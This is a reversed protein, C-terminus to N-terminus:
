KQTHWNLFHKYNEILTNLKEEAMFGQNEKKFADTVSFLGENESFRRNYEVHIRDIVEFYIAKTETYKNGTTSMIVSADLRHPVTKMRKQEDYVIGSSDALSKAKELVERYTDDTRSKQLEEKTSKILHVAAALDLEEAQLQQSLCYPIGLIKEKACLLFIFIKQMIQAKIGISEAMDKKGEDLVALIAQYTKRIKSVANLWYFWRTPVTRELNLVPKNMRQQIKIFLEHRITSNSIFQYLTQVTSFFDNVIDINNLVDVLDLNLRHAHCHFYTAHPALDKIRAQVGSVRGRM